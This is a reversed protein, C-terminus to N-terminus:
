VYMGDKSIIMKRIDFVIKVLCKKGRRGSDKFEGAKSCLMLNLFKSM